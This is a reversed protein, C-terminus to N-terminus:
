QTVRQPWIPSASDYMGGVGEFGPLRLEAGLSTRLTIPDQRAVAKFPAARLPLDLPKSLGLERELKAKAQGAAELAAVADQELLLVERVIMGALEPYRDRIAREAREAKANASDVVQRLRAVAEDKQAERERRRLADLMAVLRAREEEGAKLDAEAREVAAAEGDLLREGRTRQLEVTREDLERLARELDERTGALAAATKEKPRLGLLRKLDM